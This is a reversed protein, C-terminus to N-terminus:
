AHAHSGARPNETFRRRKDAEVKALLDLTRALRYPAFADNVAERSERFSTLPEIEPKFPIGIATAVVDWNYWDSESVDPKYLDAPMLDLSVRGRDRIIRIALYHRVGILIWNGFHKSDPGSAEWVKFGWDKLTLGTAKFWPDQGKV